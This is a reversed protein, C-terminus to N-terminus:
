RADAIKREIDALILRYSACDPDEDLHRLSNARQDYLVQLEPSMAVAPGGWGGVVLTALLAYGFALGLWQSVKTIM